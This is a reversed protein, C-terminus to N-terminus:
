QMVVQKQWKDKVQVHGTRWFMGQGALVRELVNARDEFRDFWLLHSWWQKNRFNRGGEEPLNPLCFASVSLTACFALTVTRVALPLHSSTFIGAEYVPTVFEVETNPNQAKGELTHFIRNSFSRCASVPVSPCATCLLGQLVWTGISQNVKIVSIVPQTSLGAESLALM